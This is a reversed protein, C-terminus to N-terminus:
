TKKIEMESKKGILPVFNTPGSMEITPTVRNYVKLVESFVM